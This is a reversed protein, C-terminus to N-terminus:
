SYEVVTFSSVLCFKINRLKFSPQESEDSDISILIDCQKFICIVAWNPTTNAPSYKLFKHLPVSGFQAGHM